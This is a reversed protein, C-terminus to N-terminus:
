EVLIAAQQDNLKLQAAALRFVVLSFAGCPKM